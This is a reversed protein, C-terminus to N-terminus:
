GKPAPPAVKSAPMVVSGDEHATGPLAPVRRGPDEVGETRLVSPATRPIMAGPAEEGGEGERGGSGPQGKGDAAYWETSRGSFCPSSMSPM